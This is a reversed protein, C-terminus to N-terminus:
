FATNLSLWITPLLFYIVYAFCWIGIGIAACDSGQTQPRKRAPFVPEFGALSM